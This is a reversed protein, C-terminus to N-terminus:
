TGQQFVQVFYALIVRHFGRREKNSFMSATSGQAMILIADKIQLFEDKIEFDDVDVDNLAALVNLAEQERGTLILWRPSEPLYFLLAI